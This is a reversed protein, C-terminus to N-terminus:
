WERKQFRQKLAAGTNNPKGRVVGKYVKFRVAAVAAFCALLITTGSHCNTPQDALWDTLHTIHDTRQLYGKDTKVARQQQVPLVLVMQRVLHIAVSNMCSRMRPASIPSM